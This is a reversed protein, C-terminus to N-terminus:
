VVAQGDGSIKGVSHQDKFPGLTSGKLTKDCQGHQIEGLGDVDVGVLGDAHRQGVLTEQQGLKLDCSKPQPREKGLREKVQSSIESLSVNSGELIVERGLFPLDEKLVGEATVGLDANNGGSEVLVPTSKTVSGKAPTSQNTARNMAKGDGQGSALTAAVTFISPAATGNNKGGYFGGLPRKMSDARLWVGYPKETNEGPSVALCGELGHKIRGCSFCFRPLKEYRFSVWCTKGRFKLVRGRELPKSLDLNVRIRLYKRWGLGAGNAEVVEVPGLSAGTNHGVEKSMCVLPMDHVQIWFAAQNFSMQTPITTGDFDEIAVLHRDFLWPRGAMVKQKDAMKTFEFLWLNDQIEKFSVEGKAKWLTTMLSRFAEKNISKDAVISGVLCREGLQELEEVDTEKVVIGEQEGETLSFRAWREELEDAM